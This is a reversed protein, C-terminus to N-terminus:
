ETVYTYFFNEVDEGYKKHEATVAGDADLDFTYTSATESYDWQITAHLNASGKGFLGTEVLWRSAGIGEATTAHMGSVNPTSTYTHLKWVTNGDKLKSWRMINGDQVDINVAVEGNKVCQIMYGDEDYTYECTDWEDAFKEVLGKDNLTIHYNNKGTVEIKNGDYAFVWERDLDGERTGDATRFIRKVTWDDNYEYFWKDWDDAFTDVHYVKAVVIPATTKFKIEAWESDTFLVSEARSAKVRLTYDTSPTLDTLEIKAETVTQEPGGNLTYIYRNANDVDAWTITANVDAVVPTDFVPAALANTEPADPDDSYSTFGLAAVGLALLIISKKM